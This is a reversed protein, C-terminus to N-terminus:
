YSVRFDSFNVAVAPTIDEGPMSRTCASASMEREAWTTM